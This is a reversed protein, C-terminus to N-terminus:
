IKDTENTTRIIELNRRIGLAADLVLPILYTEPTHDEGTEGDPDDGAANFYRPSINKLGYATDFDRLMKEVILKSQGYPNVPTQIHDESIPLSQPDGYTSCTSSFVIKHIRHKIMSEILTLSCVVNNRNTPNKQQRITKGKQM